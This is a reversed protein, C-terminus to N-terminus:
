PERAPASTQGRSILSAGAFQWLFGRRLTKQKITRCHPIKNNSLQFTYRSSKSVFFPNLYKVIMLCKTDYRQWRPVHRRVRGAPWLLLFRNKLPPRALVSRPLGCAALVSPPHGNFGRICRSPVRRCPLPLFVDGSSSLGNTAPAHVSFARSFRAAPLGAGSLRDSIPRLWLFRGPGSAM